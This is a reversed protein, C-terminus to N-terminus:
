VPSGPPHGSEYFTKKANDYWELAQDFKKKGIQSRIMWCYIDEDLGDVELARLCLSELQDWSEEREFIDALTKVTEMYLLRYYTLVSVIWDESAVSATVDKKYLDIAQEGLDKKEEIDEAARMERALTEFKEYDTEVPVEPNWQYSGPLTLIFEQEGFDRLLLRLRYVLNKLAGEPNRTKDDEWFIEMLEQRTLNRHRYLLIYVLLKVLKNSHFDKESMFCNGDSLCFRGFLQVNM